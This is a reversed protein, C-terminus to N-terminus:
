GPVLWPPSSAPPERGREAPCPVSAGFPPSREVSASQFRIVNDADVVTVVDSANRALSRFHREQRALEATREMVDADLVAVRDQAEVHTVVQRGLLLAFVVGGDVQLLPHVGLDSQHLLAVGVALGLPAYPVLVPLLGTPPTDGSVPMLDSGRALAALGLVVCGAIWSSTTFGELSSPHAVQLYTFAVHGVALLTLGTLLLAWPLRAARRVRTVAAVVLSVLVIDVLPYVLDAVHGERYQREPVVAWVAYLLAGTVLLSDLLTRLRAPRRLAPALFALLAIVPLVLGSVSALNTPSPVPLSRGTGHEQYWAMGNALLWCVGASSLMGWGRRADAGSRFATFGCAAATFLSAAAVAARAALHTAAPGGVQLTLWTLQGLCFIVAVAAVARFRVVL